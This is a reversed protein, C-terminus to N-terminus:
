AIELAFAEMLDTAEPGEVMLRKKSITTFKATEPCILIPVRHKTAQRSLIQAFHFAVGTVSNLGAGITTILLQGTAIGVRAELLPSVNRLRIVLDIAADTAGTRANPEFFAVCTDGASQMIQGGHAVMTLRLADSGNPPLERMSAVDTVTVFGRIAAIAITASPYHRSKIKPLATSAM